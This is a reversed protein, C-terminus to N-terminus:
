LTMLLSRLWAMPPEALRDKSYLLSLDAGLGPQTELVRLGDSRGWALALRAPALGVMDSSMVIARASYIDPTVVRVQRRLGLRALDADAADAGEWSSRLSVASPGAAARQTAVAVHPAAMIAELTAQGQALPHGARVIWVLAERRLRERVFREPATTVAGLVFDVQGADLQQTLDPSAESVRLEANPARAQLRAVLAPILLASASADAVVRFSQDSTAADFDIPALAGQLRALAAHLAPAIELARQTPQLGHAHRQFLDDGLAHRLRGLAHSVASQTLGLRAGARTVSREELLADLIRLLNLDLPAIHPEARRRLRPTPRDLTPTV